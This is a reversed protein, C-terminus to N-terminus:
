HSANLVAPYTQISATQKAAALLEDRSQKSTGVYRQVLLFDRFAARVTPDKEVTQADVGGVKLETLILQKIEAPTSPSSLPDLIGSQIALTVDADSVVIGSKQAAQALLIEEIERDLLVEHSVGAVPRGAADRMSEASSIAQQVDIARRLIPQGNVVAVVATDPGKSAIAQLSQQAAGTGSQAVAVAAVISSAAAIAVIVLGAIIRRSRM